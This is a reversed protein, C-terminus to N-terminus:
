CVVLEARSMFEDARVVDALKQVVGFWNTEMWNFEGQFRSEFGKFWDELGTYNNCYGFEICVINPAPHRQGHFQAEMEMGLGNSIARQLLTYPEMSSGLHHGAVLVKIM